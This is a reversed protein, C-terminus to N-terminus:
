ILVYPSWQIATVTKMNGGLLKPNLPTYTNIPEFPTNFKVSQHMFLHLSGNGQIFSCIEKPKFM